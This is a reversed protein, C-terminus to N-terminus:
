VINKNANDQDLINDLYIRFGYIIGKQYKKKGIREALCGFGEFINRVQQSAEAEKENEPWLLLEMRAKETIRVNVKM